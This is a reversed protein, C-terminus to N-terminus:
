LNNNIIRIFYYIDIFNLSVKGSMTTLLGFDQGGCISMLPDEENDDLQMAVPADLELTRRSMNDDFPARGLALTRRRLLHVNLEKKSTLTVMGSGDTRPPINDVSYMRITLSDQM